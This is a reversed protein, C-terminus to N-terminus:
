SGVNALHHELSDLLKLAIKNFGEGLNVQVGSAISEQFFRKIQAKTPDSKINLHSSIAHKANADLIDEIVKLDQDMDTLTIISNESLGFEEIYRRREFVGQKDGDVVFLMELGWGLHLAVLAGLTGAGLGPMLPSTEKGLYVAAYRLVYYDSRSELIISRRQIDFRSPIVELRDLVPQFYNTQTPHAHVFSRYTAVKVDLSEDDLSIDDMMSQLPADARNTVIFTQELWKPEIM